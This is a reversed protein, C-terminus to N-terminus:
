NLVEQEELLRKEEDTILSSSSMPQPMVGDNM